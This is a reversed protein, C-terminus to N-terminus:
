DEGDSIGRMADLKKKLTLISVVEALAADKKQMEKQQQKVRKELERIKKDKEDTRNAMTTTIEQQFLRLHETHLGNQRLWEGNQDEPIKQYELLLNLKEAMTRESSPNEGAQKLRMTGDKVKAIWCHITIASIGSEKAVTYVSRNEPPLVKRLISNRFSTSYKM